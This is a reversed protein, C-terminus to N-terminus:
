KKYFNRYWLVFERIGKHIGIKPKYNYDRKLNSINAFTQNVDGAQMPMMEKIAKIGLEREIEAIFDLLKIPSSNGINYIRFLEINM